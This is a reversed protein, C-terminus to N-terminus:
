LHMKIKSIVFADGEKWILYHLCNRDVASAVPDDCVVRALAAPLVVM